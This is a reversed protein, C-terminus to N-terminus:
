SVYAIKIQSMQWRVTYKQRSMLFIASLRALTVAFARSLLPFITGCIHHFLQNNSKKRAQGTGNSNNVSFQSRQM